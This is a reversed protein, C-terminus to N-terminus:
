SYRNVRRVSSCIVWQSQDATNTTQESIAMGEIRHQVTNDSLPIFDRQRRAKDGVMLGVTKKIAPLMVEEGLTHPMSKKAILRSSRYSDEVAKATAGGTSTSQMIKKSTRYVQLNSKFFDVPKSKFEGHKTELHRHLNAPKMCENALGEYYCVCVPLPQDEPGTYTFGLELYSKWYKRKM